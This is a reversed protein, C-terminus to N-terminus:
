YFDPKVFVLTMGLANFNLVEWVHNQEDLYNYFFEPINVTKVAKKGWIREDGTTGGIRYTGDWVQEFIYGLSRVANKYKGLSMPKITRNSFSAVYEEYSPIVICWNSDDALAASQRKAQNRKRLTASTAM